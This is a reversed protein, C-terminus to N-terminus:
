SSPETEEGDIIKEKKDAGKEETQEPAESTRDEGVSSEPKPRWYMCTSSFSTYTGDQPFAFQKHSDHMDSMCKFEGDKLTGARHTDTYIVKVWHFLTGM